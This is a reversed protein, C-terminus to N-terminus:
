LAGSTQGGGVFQPQHLIQLCLIPTPRQLGDGEIQRGEGGSDWVEHGTHNTRVCRASIRQHNQVNM